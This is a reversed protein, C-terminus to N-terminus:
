LDNKFQKPFQRKFDSKRNKVPIVWEIFMLLVYYIHIGKNYQSILQMNALDAGWCISDM